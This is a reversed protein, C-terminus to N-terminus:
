VDLDGQRFGSKFEDRRIKVSAAALRAKYEEIEQSQNQLVGAQNFSLGRRVGHSADWQEEFERDLAREEEQALDEHFRRIDGVSRVRSAYIGRLIQTLTDPRLPTNDFLCVCEYVGNAPYPGCALYGDPTITAEVWTKPSGYHRASMWKELVYGQKGPYRAKRRYSFSGDAEWYGGIVVTRLKADCIRYVPEGLPNSGYPRCVALTWAPVIGTAAHVSTFSPPKPSVVEVKGLLPPSSRGLIPQQLLAM